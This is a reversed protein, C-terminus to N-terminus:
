RRGVRGTREPAPAACSSAGGYIWGDCFLAGDGECSRACSAMLESQCSSFAQWDAEEGLAALCWVETALADCQMTCATGTTLDCALAGSVEPAICADLRLEPASPAEYALDLDIEAEIGAACIPSGVYIGDCFLAGGDAVEAECQAVMESTCSAFSYIDDAADLSAACADAVSTPSCASAADAGAFVNCTQKPDVPVYCSDDHKKHCPDYTCKSKCNSDWKPCKLICSLSDVSYKVKKCKGPGYDCKKKCNKDWKACKTRCKKKKCVEKDVKPEYCKGQHCVPKCEDQDYGASATSTLTMPAVFAAITALIGLKAFM